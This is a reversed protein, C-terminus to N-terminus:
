ADMRTNQLDFGFFILPDLIQVETLLLLLISHLIARLLSVSIHTKKIEIRNRGIENSGDTPNSVFFSPM